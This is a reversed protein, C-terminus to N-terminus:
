TTRRIRHRIFWVLAMLPFIVAILTALSYVILTILKALSIGM